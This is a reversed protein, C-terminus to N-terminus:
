GSYLSRWVIIGESTSELDDIITSGTTTLGSVSELFHM